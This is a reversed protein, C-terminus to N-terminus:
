RRSSRECGPGLVLQAIRAQVLLMAGSSGTAYDKGQSAAYDGCLGTAYGGESRWAAGEEKPM